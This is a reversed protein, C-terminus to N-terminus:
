LCLAACNDLPGLNRKQLLSQYLLVSAPSLFLVRTVTNWYLDMREGREVGSSPTM